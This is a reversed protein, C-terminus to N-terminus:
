RHVEAPWRAFVLIFSILYLALPVVWLLPVPALNTSLYTTVSLLLSSPLAALFIWRGIRRKCIPQSASPAPEEAIPDIGQDVKAFTSERKRKFITIACVVVLVVYLGVGLAFVWQQEALTLRPEIIFPYGLLGLLSGANSAAYLFYPDRASRHGSTAFWRQLLPATTSLVFFPVGVAVGLFAVLGLIPYDQDDPLLSPLVPVPSGTMAVAAKFALVVIALLALHVIAQRRVGLKGTSRHAYLYGCLLVAQFFVMCTNWVGPSGGLFPLLLKGVLPQVLFLLAAGVFLTLAYLAPLLRLRM